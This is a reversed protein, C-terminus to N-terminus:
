KEYRFPLFIGNVLLNSGNTRHVYLVVHVHKYLLVICLLYFCHSCGHVLVFFEFVLLFTFNLCPLTTFSRIVFKLPSLARTKRSPSPGVCYEIEDMGARILVLFFRGSACTLLQRDCITSSCTNKSDETGKWQFGVPIWLSFYLISGRAWGM